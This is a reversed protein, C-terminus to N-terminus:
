LLWNHSLFHLKHGLCMITVDMSCQRVGGLFFATILQIVSAGMSTPHTLQTNIFNLLITYTCPQM